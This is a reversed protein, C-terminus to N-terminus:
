LHQTAFFLHKQVLTFFDFGPSTNMAAALLDRINKRASTEQTSDVSYQIIIQFRLIM